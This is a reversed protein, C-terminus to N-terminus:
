HAWCDTDNNIPAPCPPHKQFMNGFERGDEIWPYGRRATHERVNPTYDAAAGFRSLEPYHNRPNINYRQENLLEFHLHDMGEGYSDPWIHVYGIREGKKVVGNVAVTPDIHSYASTTKGDDHLIEVRCGWDIGPCQSADGGAAIVQGDAVAVVEGRGHIPTMIDLGAHEGHCTGQMCNEYDGAYSAMETNISTVVDAGDKLPFGFQGPTTDSPPQGPPGPQQGSESPCTPKPVSADPTGVQTIVCDGATAG